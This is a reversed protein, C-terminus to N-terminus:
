KTFNEDTFNEINKLGTVNVKVRALVRFRDSMNAVGEGLYMILDIDNTHHWQLKSALHIYGELQSKTRFYLKEELIRADKATFVSPLSKKKPDYEKYTDEIWNDILAFEAKVEEPFNLNEIASSIFERYNGISANISRRM